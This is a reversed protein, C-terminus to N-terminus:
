ELTLIFGLGQSPSISQLSNLSQPGPTAPFIPTSSNQSTVTPTVNVALDLQEGCAEVHFIKVGCAPLFVRLLQYNPCKQSTIRTLGLQLILSAAHVKLLFGLRKVVFFLVGGHRGGMKMAM